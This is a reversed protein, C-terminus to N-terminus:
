VKEASIEKASDEITYTPCTKQSCAVSTVLIAFFLIIRLKM